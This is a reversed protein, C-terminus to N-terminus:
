TPCYTVWIGPSYFRAKQLRSTIYTRSATLALREKRRRHPFVRLHLLVIVVTYRESNTNIPSTYRKLSSKATSVDCVSLSRYSQKNPRLTESSCVGHSMIALSSRLPSVDSPTRQHVPLSLYLLPIITIKHMGGQPFPLRLEKINLLGRDVTPAMLSPQLAPSNEDGCKM